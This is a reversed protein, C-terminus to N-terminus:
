NHKHVVFFYFYRFGGKSYTREECRAIAVSIETLHISGTHKDSLELICKESWFLKSRGSRCSFWLVVLRVSVFFAVM